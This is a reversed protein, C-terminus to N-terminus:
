GNMNWCLLESSAQHLEKAFYGISHLCFLSSLACEDPYVECDYATQMSIKYKQDNWVVSLIPICPSALSTASWAGPAM